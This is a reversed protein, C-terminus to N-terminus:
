VAELTDPHCDILEFYMEAAQHPANTAQYGEAMKLLCNLLVSGTEVVATDAPHNLAALLTAKETDRHVKTRPKHKM